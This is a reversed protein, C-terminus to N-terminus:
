FIVQYKGLRQHYNWKIFEWLMKEQHHISITLLFMINIVMRTLSNVDSDKFFSQLMLFTVNNWVTDHHRLFLHLLQLHCFSLWRMIWDLLLLNKLGLRKVKKTCSDNNRNFKCLSLSGWAQPRQSWFCQSIFWMSVFVRLSFFVAIVVVVHASFFPFFTTLVNQVYKKNWNDLM